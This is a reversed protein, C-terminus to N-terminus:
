LIHANKADTSLENKLVEGLETMVNKLHNDFDRALNEDNNKEIKRRSSRIM